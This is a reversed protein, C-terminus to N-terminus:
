NLKAEESAKMRELSEAVLDKHDEASLTRKVIGGAVQVALAATQDYLEKVATDKALTIERRARALMEDTEKRADEQMRRRVVEADRKGKEIVATAEERAKDIQAQYQVLLKEAAEREQRATELSDRIAAERKQLVDLTPGWAFKKLILVVSGFIILTVIANGIGGAFINPEGESAALAPACYGALTALVALRKLARLNM